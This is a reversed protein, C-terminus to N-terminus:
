CHRGTGSPENGDSSGCPGGHTRIRNMRGCPNLERASGNPISANQEAHLSRISSVDTTPPQEKGISTRPRDGPARTLRSGVIFRLGADDLDKLNKASLEGADAAIVMNAIRHRDRFQKVIPIITHTEAKNGEYCGIELPFGHRDVLLGVVIQPDVRREKPYGVKRFDDEKEAEFYLTTVDFLCLTVGDTPEAYTYCKEAIQDRYKRSHARGVANLLTNYHPPKAGIDDLVRISDRKSTPEVM